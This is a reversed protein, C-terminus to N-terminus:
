PVHAKRKQQSFGSTRGFPCHFRFNQHFSSTLGLQSGVSQRWKGKDDIKGKKVMQSKITSKETRPRLWPAQSILIKQEPDHEVYSYRETQTQLRGRFVEQRAADLSLINM